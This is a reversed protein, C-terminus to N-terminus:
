TMCVFLNKWKLMVFIYFYKRSYYRSIRQFDIYSSPARPSSSHRVNSLSLRVLNPAYKVKMRKRPDVYNTCSPIVRYKHRTHKKVGHFANYTIFYTKKPINLVLDCGM